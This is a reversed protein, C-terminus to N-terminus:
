SNVKQNYKKIYVCFFIVSCVFVIIGIVLLVNSRIVNINTNLLVEVMLNHSAHAIYTYMLNKTQIYIVAFLISSIIIDLSSVLGVMHPICFLITSIVIISFNKHKGLMSEIVMYRFIFEEVFPNIVIVAIYNLITFLNLQEEYEVYNGDRFALYLVIATFSLSLTFISSMLIPDIKKWENNIVPLNIIKKHLLYTLVTGIFMGLENVILGTLPNLNFFNSIVLAAIYPFLWILVITIPAASSKKM